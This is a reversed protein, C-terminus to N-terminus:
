AVIKKTWTITNSLRDPIALRNPNGLSSILELFLWAIPTWSVITQLTQYFKSPVLFGPMLEPHGNLMPAYFDWAVVLYYSQYFIYILGVILVISDRKVLQRFNLETELGNNIVKINVIAKGITKKFKLNCLILYFPYFLGTVIISSIFTIWNYFISTLSNILFIVLYLIVLDIIGAILRKGFGAVM